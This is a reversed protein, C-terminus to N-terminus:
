APGPAPKASQESYAPVDYLVHASKARRPPIPENPLAALVAKM